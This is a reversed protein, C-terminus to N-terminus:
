STYFFQISSALWPTQISALREGIGIVDFAQYMLVSLEDWFVYGIGFWFTMSLMLPWVIIWAVKLRFLDRFASAIAIFVPSM